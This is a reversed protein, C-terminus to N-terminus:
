VSLAQGCRACYVTGPPSLTGCGHCHLERAMDPDAMSTMHEREPNILLLARTEEQTGQRILRRLLWIGCVGVALQGIFGIIGRNSAMNWASHLLVAEAMYVLAIGYLRHRNSGKVRRQLRWWGVAMLGTWIGHGFPSLLTRVWLVALLSSTSDIRALGYLASELSAFGMGAAVGFVVADTLFRMNRARFVVLLPLLKSLEEIVAILFPITFGQLGGSAIGGTFVFRTELWWALPVAIGAAFAFAAALRRPHFQLLQSDRVYAVFAVPGVFAGIFLVAIQLPQWGIWLALLTFLVFLALGGFMVQLWQNRWSLPQHLSDVTYSSNRQDSAASVHDVAHPQRVHAIEQIQARIQESERVAHHFHERSLALLEGDTVAQVTSTRPINALLAIEGFFDGPGLVAARKGNQWVEYKGRIIMYFADGAEGERVISAGALVPLPTAAEALRRLQEDPLGSWISMKRLNGHTSRQRILRELRSHFAPCSEALAHFSTRDFGLALGDTLAAVSATRRENRILAMEGILAGPELKALRIRLGILNRAYVEVEGTMIWYCNDGAEGERLLVDGTKFEYYRMHKAADTLQDPPLDTTLPHEQLFVLPTLM